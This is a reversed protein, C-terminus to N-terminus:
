GITMRKREHAVWWEAHDKDRLLRYKARAGLGLDKRSLSPLYGNQELEHGAIGEVVELQEPRLHTKWEAIMSTTIAQYTEHHTTDTRHRIADNQRYDELM